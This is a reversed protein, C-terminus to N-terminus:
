DYFFFLTVVALWRLHISRCFSNLFFFLSSFLFNVETGALHAELADPLSEAWCHRSWADCPKVAVITGLCRRKDFSVYRLALPGRSALLAIAKAVADRTWLRRRADSPVDEVGELCHIRFCHGDEHDPPARARELILHRADAPTSRAVDRFAEAAPRRRSEHTGLALGYLPAILIGQRGPGLADLVGLAVRYDHEFGQKEVTRDFVDPRYASAYYLGDVDITPWANPAEGDAHRGRDIDDDDDDDDHHRRGDGPTGRYIAYGFADREARRSSHAAVLSASAAWLARAGSSAIWWAWRVPVRVARVIGVTLGWALGGFSVGYMINSDGVAVCCGNGAVIVSGHARANHSRDGRDNTETTACLSAYPEQTDTADSTSTPSSPPPTTYQRRAGTCSVQITTISGDPHTQVVDYAGTAERRFVVHTGDRM